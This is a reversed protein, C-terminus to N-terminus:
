VDSIPNIIILLKINCITHKKKIKIKDDVVYKINALIWVGM